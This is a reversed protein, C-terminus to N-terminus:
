IGFLIGLRRLYVISRVDQIEWPRRELHVESDKLEAKEPDYVFGENKTFDVIPGFDDDTIKVAKKKKKKHAKKSRRVNLSVNKLTVAQSQPDENKKQKILETLNVEQENSDSFEDDEDEEEYEDQCDNENEEQQTEKNQYSM